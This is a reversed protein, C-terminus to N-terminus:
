HRENQQKLYDQSFSIQYPLEIAGTPCIDECSTCYTCAQPHVVVAKGEICGLAQTPCVDICDGCGTCLARDIQPIWQQQTTM